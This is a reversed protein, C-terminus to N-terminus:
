DSLPAYIVNIVRQRIQCPAGGNSKFLFHLTHIGAPLSDTVGSTGVTLNRCQYTKRTGPVETFTGSGQPQVGIAIECFSCGTIVDDTANVTVLAFGPKALTLPTSVTSHLTTSTTLDTADIFNSSTRGFPLLSLIGQADARDVPSGIGLAVALGLGVIWLVRGVATSV